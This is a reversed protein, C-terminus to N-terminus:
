PILEDQSANPDITLGFLPEPPYTVEEPAGFQAADMPLLQLRDFNSNVLRELREPRTLYAWEAKQMDFKARMGSIERNLASVERLMAQTAYNERYAWFALVMVAIFSSVYIFPRM